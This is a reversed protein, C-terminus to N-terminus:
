KQLFITAIPLSNSFLSCYNKIIRMSFLNALIFGFTQFFKFIYVIGIAVNFYNAIIFAPSRIVRFIRLPLFECLIDFQQIHIYLVSIELLSLIWYDWTSVIEILYFFKDLLQMEWPSFSLSFQKWKFIVYFMVFFDFLLSCKRLMM